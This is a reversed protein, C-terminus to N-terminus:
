LFKHPVHIRLKVRNIAVVDIGHQETVDGIKHLLKINHKRCMHLFWSSPYTNNSLEELFYDGSTYCFAVQSVAAIIKEATTNPLSFYDSPDRYPLERQLIPLYRASVLCLPLTPSFLPFFFFFLFSSSSAHSTQTYSPIERQRAGLRHAHPPSVRVVASPRLYPYQCPFSPKPSYRHLASQTPAFAFPTYPLIDTAEVTPWIASSSARKNHICQAAGTSSM